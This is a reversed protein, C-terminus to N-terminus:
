KRGEKRANGIATKPFKFLAIMGRKFNELAESGETYETQKMFTIERPRILHELFGLYCWRAFFRNGFCRNERYDGGEQVQSDVAGVWFRRHWYDSRGAAM